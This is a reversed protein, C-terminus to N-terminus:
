AAPSRHRGSPYLWWGGGLMLAGWALFGLDWWIWQERPVTENVHHLELIHHDIVGEVLNFLGFGMLLTGVLLRGSWWLHRRHASRWLLALGALVFIYTSAHFLGDFFTNIRLNEVTDPPYGASSVMHHWQLIQHLVIGDFFGGIGLGFLIGATTPFTPAHTAM